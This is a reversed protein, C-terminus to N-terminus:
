LYEELQSFHEMIKTAGAKQLDEVSHCGWTVGVPNVGASVAMKIDYVTDGIMFAEQPAYGTEELATYLMAPHPKSPHFDSTQLTVFYKELGHRVLEAKLGRMSKGTAVGAEHHSAHIKELIEVAGTFIMDKIEGSLRKQSFINKYTQTIKNIVQKDQLPSLLIEVAQELSLGIIHRIQADSPAVVGNEEFALAMSTCIFGASDSLTGDFDFIFLAM